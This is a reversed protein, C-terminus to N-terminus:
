KFKIRFFLCVQRILDGLLFFWALIELIVFFASLTSVTPDNYTFNNGASHEASSVARSLCSLYLMAVLTVIVNWISPRESSTKV